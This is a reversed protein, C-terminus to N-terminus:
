VSSLKNKAYKYIYVENLTIKNKIFNIKKIKFIGYKKFEILQNIKFISIKKCSYVNIIKKKYENFIIIKLKICKKTLLFDKYFCKKFYTKKYIIVNKKRKLFKACFFNGFNINKYIEESEEVIIDYFNIKNVVIIRLPKVILIFKPHISKFFYKNFIKNFYDIKINCNSKTCKIKKVFHVLFKSSYGKNLMGRLTPLRQDNFKKIKNIKMIKIINRKRLEFNNFNMRSFEIQKSVFKKKYIKNYLKNLFVYLLRNNSFETTCISHSVKDILDSLCNSIDYTPYINFKNRFHKAKKIRFIIPNILSFNKAILNTKIRVVYEGEKYLNCKMKKLIYFFEKISKNFLEIKKNFIYAKKRKILDKSFNYIKIFNDSTFKIKKLLKFIKLDIKISKFYLNRSKEPNSDDIRLFFEGKFKKSINKNIIANKLHGIHLYGSPEPAFRTKIKKNKGKKIIKTIFNKM